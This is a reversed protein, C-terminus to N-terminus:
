DPSRNTPGGPKAGAAPHVSEVKRGTQKEFAEQRFVLGLWPVAHLASTLLLVLFIWGNKM